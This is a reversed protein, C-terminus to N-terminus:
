SCAACLVARQMQNDPGQAGLRPKGFGISLARCTSSSAAPIRSTSCALAPQVGTRSTM